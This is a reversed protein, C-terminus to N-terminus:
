STMLALADSTNFHACVCVCVCVYAGTLLLAALVIRERCQKPPFGLDQIEIETIDM